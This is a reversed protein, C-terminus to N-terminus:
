KALIDNTYLLCRQFGLVGAPRDADRRLCDFDQPLLLSLGIVGIYKGRGVAAGDGRVADVIHELSHQFPCADRLDSEVVEAVGEGGDRELVTHVDLRHGAHETVEGGPKSQIGVCM